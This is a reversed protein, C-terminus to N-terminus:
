NAGLGEMLRLLSPLFITVMTIVVPHAIYHFLNSLCTHTHMTANCMCSTHKSTHSNGIFQEWRLIPLNWCKDVESKKLTGLCYMVPLSMPYYLAKRSTATRSHSLETFSPWAVFVKCARLLTTPIFLCPIYPRCEGCEGVCQRTTSSAYQGCLGSYM